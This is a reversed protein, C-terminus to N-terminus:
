KMNKTAERWGFDFVQLQEVGRCICVAAYFVQCVFYYVFFHLMLHSSMISASVNLSTLLVDSQDLWCLTFATASLFVVSFVLALASWESCLHVSSSSLENLWWRM